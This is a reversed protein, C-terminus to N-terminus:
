WRTPGTYLLLGRLLYSYYHIVAKSNEGSLAAAIRDLGERHGARIGDLDEDLRAKIGELAAYRGVVLQIAGLVLPINNRDV